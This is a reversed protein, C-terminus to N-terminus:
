SPNRGSGGASQGTRFDFLEAAEIVADGEGQHSLGVHVAFIGILHELPIEGLEENVALPADHRTKFRDNSRLLYHGFDLGQQLLRRGSLHVRFSM